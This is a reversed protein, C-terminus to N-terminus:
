DACGLLALIDMAMDDQYRCSIFKLFKIVVSLQGITFILKPNKIPSKEGNSEGTIGDHILELFRDVLVDASQYSRSIELMFVPFYYNLAEESFFSFLDSRFSQDHPPSVEWWNNRSFVSKIYVCEDHLCREDYLLHVDGPFVLKGFQFSIATELASLDTDIV